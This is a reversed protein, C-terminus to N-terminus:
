EPASPAGEDGLNGSSNTVVEISTVDTPPAYSVPVGQPMVVM